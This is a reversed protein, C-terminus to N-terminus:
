QVPKTVFIGAKGVKVSGDAKILVQKTSMEQLNLRLVTQLAVDGTFPISFESNKDVSIASEQVFRGLYVTDMYVDAAAEKVAVGFKNPNFYTVNFGISAKELGINKLRFKELRRFEPDQVKACGTALLLFFPLLWKIKM